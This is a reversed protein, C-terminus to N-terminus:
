TASSAAGPKRFQASAGVSLVDALRSRNMVPVKSLLKGTYGHTSISFRAVDFGAQKALSTLRNYTIGNLDKHRRVDRIQHCTGELGAYVTLIKPDEKALRRLTAIIARDSFFLNVWPVNLGYRLHAGYRSLISPVNPVLLTGGPRLVRHAERFVALPDDVHEFLNDAVALDFSGDAFDMQEARMEKFTVPLGTPVALHASLRAAFLRAAKLDLTNVDIGTVSRAGAAAMFCAIGGHGCGIELVDLNWVNQGLGQRVKQGFQFQAYALRYSESAPDGSDLADDGYYRTSENSWMRSLRYLLMESLSM